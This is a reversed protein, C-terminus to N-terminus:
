RKQKKISRKQRLKDLVRSRKQKRRLIVAALILETVVFLVITGYTIIKMWDTKNGNRPSYQKSVTQPLRVYAKSSADKPSEPLPESTGQNPSAPNITNQVGNKSAKPSSKKSGAQSASTSVPTAGCVSTQGIPSLPTSPAVPSIVVTDFGNKFGLTRATQWWLDIARPYAGVGYGGTGVDLKEAVVCRGNYNIELKTGAPLNGLASFDSYGPPNSLEAYSVRNHLKWDDLYGLGSDDDCVDDLVAGMSDATFEGAAIRDCQDTNDIVWSQLADDFDGGYYTAGVTMSGELAGVPISLVGVCFLIIAPYLLLSRFHKHLSM